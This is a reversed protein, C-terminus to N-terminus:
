SYAVRAGVAAAAVSVAGRMGLVGIDAVCDCMHADLLAHVYVAWEKLDHDRPHFFCVGHIFFVHISESIRCAVIDPCISCIREKSKGHSTVPYFM